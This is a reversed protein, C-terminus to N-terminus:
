NNVVLRGFRKTQGTPPTYSVSGASNTVTGLLPDTGVPVTQWTVLDTSSQVLFDTGYVGIYSGGKTWTVTGGTLAPSATFGNGLLLGMFYEIGNAVGDNDFDLDKTQGGANTAAWGSYGSPTVTLQIENGVIAVTGAVGVPLTVDAQDILGTIGGTAKVLVYTGVAPIAAATLVIKHDAGELALSGAIDRQIAIQNAPSDALALVQIGNDAITVSGGIDGNGGLTAGGAVSVATNGLSGTVNMRGVNVATPGTYTNAGSFTAAGTGIKTVAITGTGGGIVSTITMPHTTNFTVTQTGTSGSTVTGELTFVGNTNAPNIASVTLNQNLTVTGTLTSSSAANGTGITYTGVTEANSAGVTVDRAVVVTNGNVQLTPSLNGNISDVSGLAIASTANGLAAANTAVITGSEITTTGTYTNTGGLSLSNTSSSGLVLNGAGAIVGAYTLAATQNVIFNTGIGGNNITATNAPAAPTAAAITGSLNGVTTHVGTALNLVVDTAALTNPNSVTLPGSTAGLDGGTAVTLIGGNVTTGGAYTNAGNLVLTGTGSKRVAGAGGITSAFDTGQTVTDSRDFALTADNTIASSASLSGTTGGNGIQLTGASILTAGTYTNAGTLRTMGAGIKTVAITGTGGGIVSSVLLGGTASGTHNFTVTRALSTGSTVIGALTFIGGNLATGRVILDQNLTVIGNLQSSSNQNGTGITYIGSVQAADTAGVTVDRSLIATGGVLLTPSLSNTITNANGLAVASIGTGFATNGSPALTGNEITTTGTYTNANSLEAAGAGTKLINRTGSESVVGTLRLNSGATIDTMHITLNDALTVPASIEDATTNTATTKSLLAGTGAKDFTLSAGGSAAITVKRFTTGPDGINLTGLTRSTSDITIVKDATGYNENFNGTASVGDAINAITGGVWKTADSWNGSTSAQAWTGDAAFALSSCLPAVVALMLSLPLSKSSPRLFPNNNKPNM